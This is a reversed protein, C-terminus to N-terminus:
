RDVPNSFTRPCIAISHPIFFDVGLWINPSSYLDYFEEKHLRRWERTVEDREPMFISGLVRIEFVRLRHEERSILYWTESV